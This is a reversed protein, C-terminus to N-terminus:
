VVCVKDNLYKAAEILERNTTITKIRNVYAERDDATGWRAGKEDLYNSM